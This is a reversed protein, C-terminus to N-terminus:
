DPVRAPDREFERILLALRRNYNAAWVRAERSFRAADESLDIHWSRELRRREPYRLLIAAPIDAAGEVRWDGEVRDKTIRDIQWCLYFARGGGLFDEKAVHHPDRDHVLHLEAERERESGVLWIVLVLVAFVGGFAKGLADVRNSM